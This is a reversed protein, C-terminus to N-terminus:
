KDKGKVIALTPEAQETPEYQKLRESLSAVHLRLAIIEMEKTGIIAAIQDMSFSNGAPSM